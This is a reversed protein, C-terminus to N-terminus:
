TSHLLWGPFIFMTVIFAVQLALIIVIIGCWLLGGHLRKVGAARAHHTNLPRRRSAKVERFHVILCVCVFISWVLLCFALAMAYKVLLYGLGLGEMLTDIGSSWSPSTVAGPLDFLLYATLVTVMGLILYTLSRFWTTKKVKRMRPFPNNSRPQSRVSADATPRKPSCSLTFLWWLPLVSLVLPLVQGFGWQNEDAIHSQARLGILRLTGWALAAGLWVIEWIMSNGTEYCAEALTLIALLSAKYCLRIPDSCRMHDRVIVSQYRRQLFAMPAVKLWRECACALPMSMRIVRSGYSFALYVLSLVALTTNYRNYGNSYGYFGSGAMLNDVRSIVADRSSPTFLCAAPCSMFYAYLDKTPDVYSQIADGDRQWAYGTPVFALSLLVLVIGMVFIRFIAIGPYSRSHQRLSTLTSLHTLASFWALDVVTQWHYLSM